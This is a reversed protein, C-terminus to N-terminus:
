EGDKRNKEWPISLTLGFLGLGSVLVYPVASPSEVATVIVGWAIVGTGLAMKWAKAFQDFTPRPLM